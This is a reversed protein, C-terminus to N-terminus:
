PRCPKPSRHTPIWRHIQYLDVYETGLRRLSGDIADLIHKRSLGSDNPGPGTPSNVKIAVVYQERRPFIQRLLRGTIQESVGFSYV